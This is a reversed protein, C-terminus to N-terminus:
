KTPAQDLPVKAQDIIPQVEIEGVTLRLFLHDGFFFKSNAFYDWVTQGIFICCAIIKAIHELECNKSIYKVLPGVFALSISLILVCIDIQTWRKIVDDLEKSVIMWKDKIIKAQNIENNKCSRNYNMKPEKKCWKLYFDPGAYFIGHMFFLLPLLAWSFANDAESQSTEKSTVNEQVLQVVRSSDQWEIKASCESIRATSSLSTNPDNILFLVFALSVLPTFLHSLFIMFNHKGHEAVFDIDQFRHPRVSAEHMYKILFSLLAIGLCIDYGSLKGSRTNGFGFLYGLIYAILLSLMIRSYLSDFERLRNMM